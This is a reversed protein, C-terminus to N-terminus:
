DVHRWTKGNVVSWVTGPEVGYEAALVVINADHSYRRYRRRLDRVDTETLVAGGHAEGHKVCRDPRMITPQRRKCVMDAMNAAHDGLFLHDPRVCPPNDCHHLVWLGAPVPGFTLEYSVRHSLNNGGRFYFAGYGRAARAATWLWCEGAKDVKAWFREGVTLNWRM